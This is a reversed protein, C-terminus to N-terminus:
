AAKTKRYKTLSIQRHKKFFKNLYSEDSFGFEAAIENIRMDSFQLRHEILRIKYNAMFQQITEGCQKKFYSGLYSASIGFEGAIRTAKLKEPSNIHRQIYNIMEQVRSDTTVKLREPKIKVINRAAIVILVNVLHMTLDEDYIDKNHMMHLISEVTSKVLFGDPKSRMICGTLHTAYYLLCEIQSINKWRFEKVYESSFRVLLFETSHSVDFTHSDNPTLLLLNGAKLPVKHNNISLSGTGSIVYVMQFFTLQIDKLPTEDVKQYIVEVPRHMNEKRM